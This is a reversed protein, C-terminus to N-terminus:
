TFYLITESAKDKISLDFKHFDLVIKQFRM